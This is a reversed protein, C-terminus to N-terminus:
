SKHQELLKFLKSKVEEFSTIGINQIQLIEEASRLLLQSVITIGARYLANYVRNSLELNIIPAAGLEILFEETVEDQPLLRNCRIPDIYFLVIRRLETTKPNIFIPSDNIMSYHLEPQTRALIQSVTFIGLDALGGQSYHSFGLNSLSLQALRQRAKEEIIIEPLFNNVFDTDPVSAEPYQFYIDQLASKLEEVQGLSLSDLFPQAEGALISGINTRFSGIKGNVYHVLHATNGLEDVRLNELHRIDKWCVNTENPHLQAIKNAVSSTPLPIFDYLQRLPKRLKRLAKGEIQRIREQTVGFERAIEKLTCAHNYDLDFRLRIVRSERSSLSDLSNEMAEILEKERMPSVPHLARQGFIAHLLHQHRSVRNLEFYNKLAQNIRESGRPQSMLTLEQPKSRLLTDIDFFGLNVLESINESTTGFPRLKNVPKEILAVPRQRGELIPLYNRGLTGEPFMELDLYTISERGM